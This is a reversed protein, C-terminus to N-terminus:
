TSLLSQVLAAIMAPALDASPTIEYRDVNIPLALAGHVGAWLVQAWMAPDGARVTGHAQGAAVADRLARHLALTEVPQREVAAATPPRVLLLVGRYVDPNEHAWQVYATLMVEIRDLPEPHAEVINDIQRAFESVPRSWMTQMLESVNAFYSYLLGTSVGARKAISRVSLGGIGEEQYIDAAARRIRNRQERRQEDTAAPRGM